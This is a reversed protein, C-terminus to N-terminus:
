QSNHEHFSECLFVLFLVHVRLQYVLPSQEQSHLSYQLIWLLLLRDMLNLRSTVTLPEHTGM